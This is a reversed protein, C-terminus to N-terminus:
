PAQAGGPRATTATSSLWQGGRPRPLFVCHDALPQIQRPGHHAFPAFAEAPFSERAQLLTRASTAGRTKGGRMTASTFAMAQSSGRVNPSGKDRKLRSSKRRYTRAVPSTARIEPTVM